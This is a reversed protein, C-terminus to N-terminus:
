PIRWLGKNDGRDRKIRRGPRTGFAEALILSPAAVPYDEIACTCAQHGGDCLAQRNGIRTFTNLDDRCAEVSHPVDYLAHHGTGSGYSLSRLLSLPDPVSRCRDEGVLTRRNNLVGAFRTKPRM